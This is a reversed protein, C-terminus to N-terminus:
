SEEDLLDPVPQNLGSLISALMLARQRWQEKKQTEVELRDELLRLHELKRKRSRRAAVTNQRRKQEILDKETPNPPLVYDDLQDEEDGFATSRARKRAFVAPVDKRSTASPTVYNRSQTPASEDLLNEPTVGKRIGTATVKRRTAAPKVISLDFDSQASTQQPTSSFQSPDFSDHLPSSPSMTILASVDLAPPSKPQVAPERVVDPLSWEPFMPFLLGNHAYDPGTLMNSEDLYDFLPTDVMSDQPTFPNVMDPSWPSFDDMLSPTAMEWESRPVTLFEFHLQTVPVSCHSTETGLMAALSKAVEDDDDPIVPADLEQAVATPLPAVPDTMNTNDTPNRSLMSLYNSSMTHFDTHVPPKPSQHHSTTPAPPLIEPIGYHAALDKSSQFVKSHTRPRRIPHNLVHNTLLQSSSVSTEPPNSLHGFNRPVTSPNLSASTNVFEHVDHGSQTHTFNTQSASIAVGTTSSPSSQTLPLRALRSTPPILEQDDVNTNNGSFAHITHSSFIISPESCPPSSPSKVQMQNPEYFDTASTAMSVSANAYSSAMQIYPITNSAYSFVAILDSLISVCFLPCRLGFYDSSIFRHSM